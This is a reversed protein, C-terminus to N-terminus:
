CDVTLLCVIQYGPPEHEYTNRPEMPPATKGDLMMGYAIIGHDSHRQLAAFCRWNRGEALNKWALPLQRARNGVSM